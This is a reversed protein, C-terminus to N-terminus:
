SKGDSPITTTLRMVRRLSNEAPSPFSRRKQDRAWRKVPKGRCVRKDGYAFDATEVGGDSAISGNRLLM